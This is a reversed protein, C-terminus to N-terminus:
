KIELSYTAGKWTSKYDKGYHQGPTKDIDSVEFVYRGPWIPTFVAMGNDDTKLERSWGIPSFVSVIKGKAVASNLLAKLELPKNVKADLFSDSHLMLANTNLPARGSQKGVSVSATSLFHYKTSGGLEKAEHSVVLTYAGNQTPTFNSEFYNVGPEVTLQTKQQDPGVLWLTFEKVDSYWKAVSDRENEIYEGYFVKVTQKQRVKGTSATEIWLAHAFLSTTSLLSGLVLLTLNRM